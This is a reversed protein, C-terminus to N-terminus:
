NHHSAMAFHTIYWLQVTALGVHLTLPFPRIQGCILSLLIGSLKWIQVQRGHNRGHPGRWYLNENWDTWRPSRGLYTFYYPKTVKQGPQNTISCKKEPVGEPRIRPCIKM